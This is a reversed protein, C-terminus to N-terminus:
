RWLLAPRPKSRGPVTEAPTGLVLAAAADFGPPLGIAARGEDSRLWPMPSGVWCSGLGRALAALALNQGARCCDFPAEPHGQRACFVVLLPAGWFVEFDARAPWSWPEGSPQHDAAYRKAQDGYEALREHGEIVVIAWSNDDSVPPMPVQVAHWLLDEVVGRPVPQPKFSRISRRGHIADILNMPPEPGSPSSPAFVDLRQAFRRAAAVEEGIAAVLTDGALPKHLVRLGHRMVAWQVAVDGTVILAPLDPRLTRLRSVLEVGEGQPLRQDVVAIDIRHALDAALALASDADGAVHAQWGVAQLLSGVAAVIDAEDDVLLVALVTMKQSAIPPAADLSAAPASAPRNLAPLTLEFRTGRGNPADAIRVQGGLMAATRQVIALGLGLGRSRDRAPNGLQHFEEFVHEREAHPIGPGTDSVSICLLATGDLSRRRALGLRVEGDDTFKFANDLLNRVSRLLQDADTRAWHQLPHAEIDLVFDLSRQRAVADFEDHLQRLLGDVDLESWQLKVAGADLRSIDLLADLLGQSQALARGISGSLERLRADDARRALLELTTANISLAHLPQRLDHSAAAFFRTRAEGAARARDREVALSAALDENRQNLRVSAEWSERQNRVAWLSLPLALLLLATISWGLAGGHVAWGVVILGLPLANACFYTRERGSAAIVGAGASANALLTFMLMTNEDTGAFFLPVLAARTLSSAFFLRDAGALGAAPGDQVLPIWRRGLYQAAGFLAVRAAFWLAVWAPALGAYWALAAWMVDLPLMTYSRRLTGLLHALCREDVKRQLSPEAQEAAGDAATAPPLTTLPPQGQLIRALNIGELRMHKRVADFERRNLRAALPGVRLHIEAVVRVVGDDLPECCFRMRPLLLRMLWFTPAFEILRGPEIRTFRVTKKLLQGGIVEEFHFVNGLVVGRGREWRFLRHDPHWAHFHHEINEFFAFVEQAPARVDVQDRLIM